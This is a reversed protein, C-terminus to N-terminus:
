KIGEKSKGSNVYEWKKMIESLEIRIFKEDVSAVLPIPNCGGPEGLTAVPIPTNCYICIVHDEKQGYGDPQCIECADLCVSLSNDPKQIVLLQIEKGQHSLVFKHLASDRLDMTPDNLPIMILGKDDVVPKPKPIYLQSVSEGGQSFWVATIMVVFVIVPLAKRRRDSLIFHKLMRRKAGSDTDEAPLPRTLSYYIFMLPFLLLLLLSEWLAINSGFFFGIFNWVTTKLLPHDPVMLFVFVQHIFDHSFKMLGRQLSPILTLEAFGQVGGGFLKVIAFFLLLQPVDFFSSILRVRAYRIAVVSIGGAIAIGMAASAYTVAVKEKLMALDKVYVATGAMDPLFFFVASFLVLGQVLVSSKPMKEFFLFMRIGSANLLAAVSALLFVVFSLHIGNSIQEKLEPRSSVLFMVASCLLAILVGSAFAARLHERNFSILCARLVLWVLGIKIGEKFGVVLAEYVVFSSM